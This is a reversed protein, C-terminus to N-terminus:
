YIIANIYNVPRTVRGTAFKQYATVAGTWQKVAGAASRRSRLRIFHRGQGRFIYSNDEHHRGKEDTHPARIRVSARGRRHSEECGTRPSRADAPIESPGDRFRYVDM